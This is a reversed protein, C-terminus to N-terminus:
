LARLAALVEDSHGQVDVDPFVRRIRGDPGILFTVRRPYGRSTDVGYKAAIAGDPDVLLSFPIGHKEAFRRHSEADDLSM